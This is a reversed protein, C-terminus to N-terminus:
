DKDSLVCVSYIECLQEKFKESLLKQYRGIYINCNLIKKCKLTDSITYVAFRLCDAMLTEYFQEVSISNKILFPSSAKLFANFIELSWIEGELVCAEMAGIAVDHLIHGYYADGFDILGVVNGMEDRLINEYFCDAHLIGKPSGNLINEHIKTREKMINWIELNKLEPIRKEIENAIQVIYEFSNIFPEGNIIEESYDASIQLVKCLFLGINRALYVSLESRCIPIGFLYFYAFIIQNETEFYFKNGFKLPVPVNIGKNSFFNLSQIEFMVHGTELKQSIFKPYVRIFLKGKNTDLIINIATHSQIYNPESTAEVGLIDNLKQIIEEFQM